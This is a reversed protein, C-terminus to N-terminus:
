RNSLKKALARYLREGLDPGQIPYLFPEILELEMLLLEGQDGRVMDVRSYLPMEPLYKLVKLASEKDKLSPNAVFKKGGYMAQIRYDETAAKKLVCHSLDGDIFIFSYEGETNISEIKPQVMLPYTIQPIEDTKQILYQGEANAGVMPKCVIFDTEFHEFANQIKEETPAECWLTPILNVGKEGLDKLYSKHLNWKLTSLSNFLRTQSEIKALADMFEKERGLYDWCTGVIVADFGGWDVCPDDWSCDVLQDGVKDFEPRLCAMMQDHQYADERRNKSQPMTINSAM